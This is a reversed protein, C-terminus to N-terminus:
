HCGAIASMIGFFVGSALNSTRKFHPLFKRVARRDDFFNQRFCIRRGIPLPRSALNVASEM